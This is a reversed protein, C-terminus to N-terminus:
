VQDSDGPGSGAPSLRLALVPAIVPVGVVAPVTPNVSFTVSLTPAVVVLANDIVIAAAGDMVVTASKFPSTLTTYECVAAAVPPVSGYVQDNDGPGSGAPSLRLAFVPAIVPVGVTAPVELIVSFTVSLTPAVAVLARVMVIPAAGDIVVLTSAFPVTLATYEWVAATVPPVCGNVHDNDGPGSGAPSLRLALVPAIEPVGVAAPNNLKVSCTTSATPAFSVFTSEIEIANAGVMEIEDNGPPVTPVAYEWVTATEPPEAGKAQDTDRPLKGAPRDNFKLLPKIEPVGVVAPVTLKEM